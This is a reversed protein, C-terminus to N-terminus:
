PEAGGAASPQASVAAQEITSDLSIIWLRLEGPQPYDLPIRELSFPMTDDAALANEKALDMVGHETCWAIVVKFYRRLLLLPPFEGRKGWWELLDTSGKSSNCARCSYVINDGREPGGKASPLLHDLSLNQRTGCYACSQHYRLKLREDDLISGVNMTGKLLGRYLRSRIIFHPKQYVSAHQWVAAQAMALNAYSWFLIDGVTELKPQAM